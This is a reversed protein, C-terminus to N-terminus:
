ASGYVRRPIHRAERRHRILAFNGEYRVDRSLQDRAPGSPRDVPQTEDNATGGGIM